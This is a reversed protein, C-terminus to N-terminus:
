DRKALGCIRVSVNEESILHISLNSKEKEKAEEPAFTQKMKQKIEM